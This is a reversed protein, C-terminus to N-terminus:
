SSSFTVDSVVRMSTLRCGVELWGGNPDAVKREDGGRGGGGWDLSRAPVLLLLHSEKGEEEKGEEEKEKEEEEKARRSPLSMVGYAQPCFMYSMKGEEEEEEEERRGSVVAAAAVQRDGLGKGDRGVWFDVQNAESETM